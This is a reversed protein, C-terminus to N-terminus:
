GPGPRAVVLPCPAHYILAQSTSGAQMGRFGGQGRSGVVLLQADASRELLHRVPRDRVVDRHVAVEPYRAQYGALREALVEEQRAQMGDWDVSVGHRAAHEAVAPSDMGFELWTHVAILPAGRWSAEDFAIATAAESAPSGDVGLVVPGGAPPPRDPTGGRIVAVPCHGHIALAVATSGAILGDFGGAGRSGLVLMRASRSLELLAPVPETTLLEAEVRLGPRTDRAVQEADALCRRGAEEVLKALSRPAGTGAYAAVASLNVAHVLRLPLARRAAEDAAWGVAEISAASGDVGAVIAGDM